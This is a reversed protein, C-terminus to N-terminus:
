DAMLLFIIGVGIVIWILCGYEEMFTSATAPATSTIKGLGQHFSLTLEHNGIKVTQLISTGLSKRIENMLLPIRQELGALLLPKELSSYYNYLEQQIKVDGESLWKFRLALDSPIQHPTVVDNFHSEVANRVEEVTADAGVFLKKKSSPGKLKWLSEVLKYKERLPMGKPLLDFLRKAVLGSMRRSGSKWSGFTDYAYQGAAEGYTRRYESLISSLREPPLGFFYDKVDQDVGGMERTFAEAEAIHRRAAEDGRSTQFGRKPSRGGRYYRAM